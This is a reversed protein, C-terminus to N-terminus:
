KDTVINLNNTNKELHNKIKTLINEIQTSTLEKKPIIVTNFDNSFIYIGNKHNVLKAISSYNIEEKSKNEKRLELYNEYLLLECNIPFKLFPYIKNIIKTAYKTNKSRQGIEFMFIWFCFFALYNALLIYDIRIIAINLLIVFFPIVLLYAIKSKVIRNNDKQLYQQFLLLDDIEYKYTIIITNEEM